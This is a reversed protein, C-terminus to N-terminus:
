DGFENTLTKIPDVFACVCMRKGGGGSVAKILVPYGVDNAISLPHDLSSFEQTQMFASVAFLFLNLLDFFNTKAIFM